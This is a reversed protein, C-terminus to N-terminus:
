MEGSDRDAKLPKSRTVPEAKTHASGKSHFGKLTAALQAERRITPNSSDKAAMLKKEPIRKGEPVGLNRHLKGKGSGVAGAIWNKSDAM